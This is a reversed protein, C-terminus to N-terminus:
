KNKKLSMILSLTKEIVLFLNDNLILLVHIELSDYKMGCNISPVMLLHM